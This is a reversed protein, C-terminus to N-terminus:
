GQTALTVPQGQERIYAALKARTAISPNLHIGYEKAIADTLPTPTASTPVLPTSVM